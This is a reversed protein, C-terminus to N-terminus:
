VAALLPRRRIIRDAKGDFRHPLVSRIKWPVHEVGQETEARILADGHQEHVPVLEAIPVGGGHHPYRLVRHPIVYM